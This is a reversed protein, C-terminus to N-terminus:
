LQSNQSSCLLLWSQVRGSTFEDHQPMYRTHGAHMNQEEDADKTYMRLSDLDVVENSAVLQTTFSSLRLRRVRHTRVLSAVMHAMASQPQEAAGVSQTCLNLWAQLCTTTGSSSAFNTLIAPKGYGVLSVVLAEYINRLCLMAHRVLM